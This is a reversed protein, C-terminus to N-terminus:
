PFDAYLGGIFSASLLVLKTLVGVAPVATAVESLCSNNLLAFIELLGKILFCLPFYEYILVFDRRSIKRIICFTELFLVVFKQFTELCKKDSIIM